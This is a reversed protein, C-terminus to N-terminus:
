KLRFKSRLKQIIVRSLQKFSIVTHFNILKEEIKLKDQYVEFSCSYGYLEIHKEFIYNQMSQKSITDMNIKTSRSVPKIRYFLTCQELLKAHGGRKLIQIWFEWDEFGYKMNVDYGKNVTWDDKRYLGSCHIRNKILLNALSPNGLDLEEDLEGFCKAKGYVIKVDPDEIEELCAALYNESILDDADLPLIFKGKSNGIGFNRASGVGLNEQYFYQIRKDKNVWERAVAETEDPSGDNIVLCEWNNFTQDLVSQIAEGLFQAQNYCPIIVSIIPNM